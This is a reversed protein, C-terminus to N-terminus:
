WARWQKIKGNESSTILTASEMRWLPPQSPVPNSSSSTSALRTPSLSFSPSNFSFLVLPPHVANSHVPRVGGPSARSTPACTVSSLWSPGLPKKPRPTTFLFSPGHAHYAHQSCGHHSHLLSTYSYALVVSSRALVCCVLAGL